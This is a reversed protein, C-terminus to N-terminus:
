CDDSPDTESAVPEDGSLTRPADRVRPEEDGPREGGDDYDGARPDDAGAGDSGQEGPDEGTLLWTVLEPVREETLDLVWAGNVDAAEGPLARGQMGGSLTSRHQRVLNQLRNFTMSSDLEVASAVAEAVRLARPLDSFVGLDALESRVEEILRQQRAIRGYDDDIHRARVFALADRGDLDVCGAPLDLHADDDQLPQDLHMTVGGLEDIVEVFGGFDVRVVHDIQLDTLAKITEVTCTIGGRGDGRGVEFASNARGVSGDCLEVYSDRPVSLIRVEEEDPDLRTLAMVETRDGPVYGTGFERREDATLEERSDSGLVLVTLAEAELEPPEEAAHVGDDDNGEEVPGLGGVDVRDISRNLSWLSVGIALAFALLLVGLASVSRRAWWRGGRDRWATGPRETDTM